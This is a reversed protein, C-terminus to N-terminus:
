RLRKDVLCNVTGEEFTGDEKRQGANVRTLIEIGEDITKVSWIHFKRDKVAEVLEEKLMLNKVNSEPVIVGQEGTLGKVKCVEFFGVIKENM